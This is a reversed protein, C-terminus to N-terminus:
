EPLLRFQATGDIFKPLKQEPFKREREDLARHQLSRSLRRRVDVCAGSISPRGPDSSALGGADQARSRAADTALYERTEGGFRDLSGVDPSYAAGADLVQTEVVQPV